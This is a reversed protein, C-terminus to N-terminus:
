ENVPKESVVSGTLPWTGSVGDLTSGGVWAGGSFGVTRRGGRRGPSTLLDAVLEGLAERSDEGTRGVM